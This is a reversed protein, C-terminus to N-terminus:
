NKIIRFQDVFDQAKVKVIYPQNALGEMPVEIVKKGTLEFSKSYRVRGTFLDSIELELAAADTKPIEIYLVDKVPNPYSRLKSKKSLLLTLAPNRSDVEFLSTTGSVENTVVLLNKGTPNETAAIFVLGEPGLDGAELFGEPEDEEFEIEFNRNNMYTKFEPAYPDTIDYVMVGGVRELGIFAYTKPGIKGLTIGEPEPGKDDSRKDFSPGEDNSSNFHEPFEEALIREFDNQSDYILEGSASWISFSRAGYSYIADFDGDGDYDGNATTIKLRGLNEDQQLFDADPFAVADLQLDKVRGEESFADYDRADGENATVLFTQKQYEYSQIADPLYFGKVPWTALNIGKDKDSVDLSNLALSHDKTGLPLIATTSAKKIDIIAIANNEQLTVYATKSDASISIYEPELDQAVTAGPGFIRVGEPVNANFNRFGATRINFDSVQIISVSGEPDFTYDDNPQGENAVVAYNGDPTFTVMDPMHGVTVTALYNGDVDFFVAQGPNYSADPNEHGDVVAVVKGDKVAVSNPSAGFPSLDISTVYEFTGEPTIQIVDLANDQFNTIFVRATQPDYAPIEAASGAYERGIAEFTDLWKLELERPYQAVAKKIKKLQSWAPSFVCLFLLTLIPRYLYKM